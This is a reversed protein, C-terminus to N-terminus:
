MKIIKKSITRDGSSFKLLYVGSELQSGDVTTRIQNGELKKSTYVVQGVTNLIVFEGNVDDGVIEVVFHDKTPNPAVTVTLNEAMTSNDNFQSNGSRAGIGCPPCDAFNLMYVIQCYTDSCISGNTGIATVTVCVNYTCYQNPFAHTTVPNTTTTSSGDGWDWDYETIITGPGATYNVSYSHEYCDVYNGVINNISLNCSQFNFCGDFVSHNSPMHNFTPDSILYNTNVFNTPQLNHTQVNLKQVAIDEECDLLTRGQQNTKLVALDYDNPAGLNYDPHEYHLVGFNDSWESLRMGVEIKFDKFGTDYYSGGPNHTRTIHAEQVNLSPDLLIICPHHNSYSGRYEQSVQLLVLENTNPNLEIDAHWINRLPSNVDYYVLAQGLSAAASTANQIELLGDEELIILRDTVGDYEADTASGYQHIGTNIQWILNGSYDVASNTRSGVYIGAGDIEEIVSIPANTEKAWNITTLGQDFSLLIGNSFTTFPTTSSDFVYGSLYLEGTVESFIIESPAQEVHAPLGPDLVFFNQILGTAQDLSMVFIRSLGNVKTVGTLVMLDDYVLTIDTSRAENGIDYKHEWVISGNGDLRQVHIDTDTPNNNFLTGGMFLDDELNEISYRAHENGDYYKHTFTQAKAVNAGLLFVMAAITYIVKKM